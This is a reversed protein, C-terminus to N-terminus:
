SDKSFFKKKLKLWGDENEDYAEMFTERFDKLISDPILQKKIKNFSM